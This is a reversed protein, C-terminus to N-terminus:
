DWDPVTRGAAPSEHSALRAPPGQPKWRFAALGGLERVFLQDGSIALHAWTDDDSIKRESVLEFAEPNAEILLLSGNSNLALIRDGQAILSAYKEFPKSTWRREGTELDVCTFRQNQLHLYAHGDIVVPTSMYGAANNTWATEVQFQDAKRSVQYLWSENKYSSTFVADGVVVPTLINMGRFAPVPQTWLVDGTACDVGALSSRTQVVLQRKGALEAIVPSSFASDTMDGETQLVRWLVEGTEKDIKVVSAAAQVYVGDGDVLPSCVFGFQPLPAQLKEVFDVRWKVQGNEANLCVLEDRIGAVYLSEGDYAPTARIWSGNARAFFPVDMAGPWTTSWREEGTERDFAYVAESEENRTETTFVLTDTVIPGSYSPDLPVRWLLQLSNSGLGEPWASGEVHGDREPGRWQPWGAPAEAWGVTPWWALAALGVGFLVRTIRMEM